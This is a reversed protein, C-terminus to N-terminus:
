DERQGRGTSAGELADVAAKVEALWKGWTWTRPADRRSVIEAEAVGTPTGPVGTIRQRLYVDLLADLDYDTM